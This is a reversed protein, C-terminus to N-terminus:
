FGTEYKPNPNRIYKYTSVSITRNTKRTAVCEHHINEDQCNGTCRNVQIQNPKPVAGRNQQTKLSPQFYM